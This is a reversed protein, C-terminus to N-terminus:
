TLSARAVRSWYFTMRCWWAYDQRAPKETCLAIRIYRGDTMLETYVQRGNWRYAINRGNRAHAYSSGLALTSRVSSSFSPLSQSMSRNFLFFSQSFASAFILFNLLLAASVWVSLPLTYLSFYTTKPLCLSVNWTSHLPDMHSELNLARFLDLVLTPYGDFFDFKRFVAWRREM